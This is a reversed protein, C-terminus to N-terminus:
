RGAKRGGDLTERVVSQGHDNESVRVFLDCRGQGLLNRREKEGPGANPFLAGCVTTRGRALTKHNTAKRGDRGERGGSDGRVIPCNAGWFLESKRKRVLAGEQSVVWEPKM